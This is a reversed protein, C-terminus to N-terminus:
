TLFRRSSWPTIALVAYAELAAMLGKEGSHPQPRVSRPVNTRQKPSFAAAFCQCHMSSARKGGGRFVQLRVLIKNLLCNRIAAPRDALAPRFVRPSPAVGGFVARAQAFLGKSSTAGSIKGQLFAAGGVAHQRVAHSREPQHELVAVVSRKM